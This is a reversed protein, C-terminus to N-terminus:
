YLKHSDIMGKQYILNTLLISIAGSLLAIYHCALHSFWENAQFNM